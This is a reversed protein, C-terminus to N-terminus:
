HSPTHSQVEVVVMAFAYVDSMKTPRRAEEDPADLIEPAAWRITCGRSPTSANNTYPNITM